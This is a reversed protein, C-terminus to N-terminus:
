FLVDAIRGTCSTHANVTCYIYAEDHALVSRDALNLHDATQAGVEVLFSDAHYRHHRRPSRSFLISFGYENTEYQRDFEFQVLAKSSLPSSRLIIAVSAMPFTKPTIITTSYKM